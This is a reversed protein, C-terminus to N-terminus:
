GALRIYGGRRLASHYGDRGSTFTVYKLISSAKASVGHGQLTVTRDDRPPPVVIALRVHGHLRLASDHRTRGSEALGDGQLAVAGDHRPPDVFAALYDRRALM